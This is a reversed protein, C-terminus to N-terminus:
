DKIYATELPKYGRKEYDVVPSQVTLSTKIYQIRGDQKMAEAEKDFTLWLKGGITSNRHEPKVWWALESLEQLSPYWINPAIIAALFGREDNDILVFGRGAIMTMLLQQIYTVDFSNIDKALKSPFQKAYERVMDTLIPIDYRTAHRIM